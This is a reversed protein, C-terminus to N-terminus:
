HGISLGISLDQIMSANCTSANSSSVINGSNIYEENCFLIPDGRPILCFFTGAGLTPCGSGFGRAKHM